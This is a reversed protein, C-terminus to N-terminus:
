RGPGNQKVELSLFREMFYQAGALVWLLLRDLLLVRYGCISQADDDDDHTLVDPLLVSAIRLRGGDVTRFVFVEELVSFEQM